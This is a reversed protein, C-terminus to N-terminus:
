WYDSNIWSPPERLFTRFQEPIKFVGHQFDEARFEPFNMPDELDQFFGQKQKNNRVQYIEEDLYVDVDNLFSETVPTPEQEEPIKELHINMMQIDNGPTATAAEPTETNTTVPSQTPLIEPQTTAEIYTTSPNNTPKSPTLSRNYPEPTTNIRKYPEPQPITKISSEEEEAQVNQFIFYDGFILHSVTGGFNKGWKQGM